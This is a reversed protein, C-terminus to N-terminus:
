FCNIINGGGQDFDVFLQHHLMGMDHFKQVITGQFLYPFLNCSLRLLLSHLTLSVISMIEKVLTPIRLCPARSPPKGTSPQMTSFSLMFQQAVNNISHVEHLCATVCRCLYSPQSPSNIQKSLSKQLIPMFSLSHIRILTRGCVFSCCLHFFFWTWFSINPQLYRRALISEKFVNM